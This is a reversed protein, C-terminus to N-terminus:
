VIKQVPKPRSLMNNKQMCIDMEGKDSKQGVNRTQLTKNTPPLTQLEINPQSGALAPIKTSIQGLIKQHAGCLIKNTAFWLIVSQYMAHLHTSAVCNVMRKIVRRTPGLESVYICYIFKGRCPRSWLGNARLVISFCLVKHEVNLGSPLNQCLECRIEIPPPPGSM